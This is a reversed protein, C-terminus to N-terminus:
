PQRTAHQEIMVNVVFTHTDAVDTVFEATVQADDVGVVFHITIM